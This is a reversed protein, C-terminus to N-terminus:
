PQGSCAFEGFTKEAQTVYAIHAAEATDFYGLHRVKGGLKIRAAWRGTKAQYAGKLGSRAWTGKNRHQQKRTAARLNDWRNDSTIRNKHDVEDVPWEGTMYLWALCHGLYDHRDLKIRLYGDKRFYGALDGAKMRGFQRARWRFVGTEPDYSVRERLREATLETLIGGGGAGAPIAGGM